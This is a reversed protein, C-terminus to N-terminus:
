QKVLVLALVISFALWSVLASLVGVSYSAFLKRQRYEACFIPLLISFPGVFATLGFGLLMTGRSSLRRCSTRGSVAEAQRPAGEDKQRDPTLPPTPAPPTRESISFMTKKLTASSDSRQRPSDPPTSEPSDSDLPPLPAIRPQPRPPKLGSPLIRTEHRKSSQSTSPGSTNYSSHYARSTPQLGRRLPPRTGRSTKVPVGEELDDDVTQVFTDNQRISPKDNGPSLPAVRSQPPRLFLPSGDSLQTTTEPDGRASLVPSNFQTGQSDPDDGYFSGALRTAYSDDSSEQSLSKDEKIGSESTEHSSQQGM